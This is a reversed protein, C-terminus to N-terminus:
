FILVHQSPEVIDEFFSKYFKRSVSGPDQELMEFDATSVWTGLQM